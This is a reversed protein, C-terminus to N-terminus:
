DLILSTRAKSWEKFYPTKQLKAAAGKVLMMDKVTLIAFEDSMKDTFRLINELQKTNVKMVRTSLSSCLAYLVSPNRPCEIDRGDLIDDINPLSTYIKTYQSFESYAGDGITGALLDGIDDVNNSGYITLLRSAIEWSRPTAFADGQKGDDKPCLMSKKFNLFGIIKENISNQMAWVKWADFDVGIELQILRNALAKPMKYAVSKDVVRNGAAIIYVNDPIEFEGIRRDLVIQYASAQLSPPCASLEDLFLVNIVDDSSDFDFIEPKLWVAKTKDANAAPIGRVEVNSMNLLRVDRLVAKKNLKEGVYATLQKVIDSKGVGPQGKLYFSNKPMNKLEEKTEMNIIYEQMFKKADLASISRSM